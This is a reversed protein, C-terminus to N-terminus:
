QPPKTCVDETKVQDPCEKNYAQIPLSNHQTMGEKSKAWLITYLSLVLVIGGL